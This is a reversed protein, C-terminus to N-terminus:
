RRLRRIGLLVMGLAIFPITAPEPATFAQIEGVRDGDGGASGFDFLLSQTGSPTLVHFDVYGGVSGAVSGPTAGTSDDPFYNGTFTTTPVLLTYNASNLSNQNTTSYYITVQNLSRGPDISRNLGFLRIDDISNNFGTIAVRQDTDSSDFLLGNDSATYDGIVGDLANAAPFGGISSSATATAGALVNQPNAVSVLAARLQTPYLLASVVLLAAIRKM